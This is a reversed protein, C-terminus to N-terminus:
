WGDAPSTGEAVGGISGDEIKPESAFVEVEDRLPRGTADNKVGIVSDVADVDEEDDRRPKWGDADSPWGFSRSSEGLKETGLWESSASKSKQLSPPGRGSVQGM